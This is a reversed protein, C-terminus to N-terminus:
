ISIPNQKYADVGLCESMTVFELQQSKVFEIVKPAFVSATQNYVDHQLIVNHNKSDQLAKKVIDLEEDVSTAKKWDTIDISWTVVSYDLSNLLQINKDTVDGYPPRMVAPYQGTAHYIAQENLAMEKKIEDDKLSSIKPHTFTHSAIENGADYAKRIDPNIKDGSWYNKGNVFFTAKVQEKILLDILASTYEFPGDDFTLAFQHEAQCTTLLGPRILPHNEQPPSPTDGPIPNLTDANRASQIDEARM